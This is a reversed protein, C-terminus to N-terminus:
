GAKSDYIYPSTLARKHESIRALNWPAALQKKYSSSASAKKATTTKKTTTKKKTTKKTTTTKKKTTSKKTTTTKKTSAAKIKNTVKKTSSTKKTTTTSKKSALAKFPLTELKDIITKPAFPCDEDHEWKDFDFLSTRHHRKATSSSTSNSKKTDVTRIYYRKGLRSTPNHIFQIDYDPIIDLIDSHFSKAISQVLDLHEFKVSIAKFAHGLDFADFIHVQDDNTDRRVIKNNTKKL